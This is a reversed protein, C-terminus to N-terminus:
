RIENGNSILFDFKSFDYKYAVSKNNEYRKLNYYKIKSKISSLESDVTDALVKLLEENHTTIFLQVNLEIATKIIAKWVKPMSKYHLGNEFEDIMVFGGNGVGYIALILSLIRRIGDGSVEIPLLTSLGEINLFIGNGVVNIGKIKEDIPRLLNTVKSDEKATIIGSLTRILNDHEFVKFSPFSCNFNELPFKGTVKIAKVEDPSELDELTESTVIEKSNGKRERILTTLALKNDIREYDNTLEVKFDRQYGDKDFLAAIEIPSEKVSKNFFYTVYIDSRQSRFRNLRFLANVRWGILAFVAELVSTKGSNNEGTFINIQGLDKITLDTIGRFNKIEIDKIFM